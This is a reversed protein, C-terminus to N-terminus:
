PNKAVEKMHLRYAEVSARFERTATDRNADRGHAFASHCLGRLAEEMTTRVEHWSPEKGTVGYGNIRVDVDGRATDVFAKVFEDISDNIRKKLAEDADHNIRDQIDHM